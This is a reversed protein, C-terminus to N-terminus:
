GEVWNLQGNEIVVCGDGIDVVLPGMEVVRIPEYGAFRAWRNYLILAKDVQGHIFMEVTAGVMRDHGSDDDHPALGIGAARKERALWEHFEHGREALGSAGRIWDHWRIAMYAMDVPGDLTSWANARDFDVQCGVMRALRKAGVNHAPVKTLVEMAPTRLFMWSLAAETFNLALQGRMVSDFQTHVEYIGAEQWHFLLGGHDCMLAVNRRDKVVDALDLDKDMQEPLAVFPKVMPDNVVRNLRRADFDRRMAFAGPNTYAVISEISQTSM